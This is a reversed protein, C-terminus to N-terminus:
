GHRRGRRTRRWSAASLGLLLALWGTQGTGATRCGCGSDAPTADFLKPGADGAQGASGDPMAAGGSGGQGAEQMVFGDPGADPLEQLPECHGAVCARGGPCQAGECNDKCTGSECHTGAGCEPQCSPDVCQGTATNCVLGEFCAAGNCQGCGEFCIGSRCTKPAECAVGECLDLCEDNLCLQGYPCVVGECPASCQGARCVQDSPCTKGLCDAPVCLGRSTDCVTYAEQCPFEGVACNGVCRGNHCLKNEPCVANDDILDNCDNDVGDCKEPASQLAQTCIVNGGICQTVGKKCIGQLGPVECDVGGGPCELGMVSTVMDTFDGSGGGYIDEWAFYFKHPTIKSDFILLHIYSQAGNFDPNFDRQSYYVRGQGSQIRDLTACCDGGACKGPEGEPTGLFFGVEGGKYEPHNQIDLIAEKGVADGCSLMVHLDSVEPKSGTVNYWGFIDQFIATGRSVVKFTLPCTPQYTEPTIMADAVPDLGSLNSPICTNDNPSHWMTTECTGNKGDECSTSGGPCAAGINCVGAEECQCAFVAALGTPQGGSCGPQNPITTGNPQKIEAFAGLSILCVAVSSVVAPWTKM